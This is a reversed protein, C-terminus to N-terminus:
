DLDGISNWNENRIGGGGEASQVKGVKCVNDADQFDRNPASLSRTISLQRARLLQMADTVCRRRIDCFLCRAGAAYVYRGPCRGPPQSNADIRDILRGHPTPRYLLLFELGSVPRSAHQCHCSTPFQHRQCIGRLIACPRGSCHRSSQPREHCDPRQLIRDRRARILGGAGRGRGHSARRRRGGM